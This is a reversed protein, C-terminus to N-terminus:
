WCLCFPHGAPDAYVRFNDGGGPLRTAGLELVKPEAVEVDAVTLDLHYQQPHAPDPWQPPNYNEVRQFMLQGQDDAGILVGFDAEYRIEMGTVEAYFRALAQPDACDITVGYVTTQPDEANLCLDFPHGAPDALTHWSEGGGLRVAGLKEAAEAAADIDPVRLDLHFQQPHEQGPWQPPVLGPALQFSVRYGDPTRLNIWDDAAHTQTWGALDRYFAALGVIDPADVVVARLTGIM